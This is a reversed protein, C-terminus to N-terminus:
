EENKLSAPKEPEYFSMISFGNSSYAVYALVNFLYSFFKKKM